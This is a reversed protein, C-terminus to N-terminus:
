KSENVVELNGGWCRYENGSSTVVIYNKCGSSVYSETRTVIDVIVGLEDILRQDRAGTVVRKVLDGVKV